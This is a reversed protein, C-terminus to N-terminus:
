APQEAEGNQAPAEAGEVGPLEETVEPVVENISCYVKHIGMCWVNNYNPLFVSVTMIQDGEVVNYDSLDIQAVVDSVDIQNIIDAPGVVTVNRIKEQEVTCRYNEPVNIFYIRSNPISIDKSSYGDLNFIVQATDNGSINTYRDSEPIAFEFISNVGLGVQRLDIYGLFIESLNEISDDQTRVTIGPPNITYSLSSMDFSDFSPQVEVDLALAKKMYVPVLVNFTDTDLTVKPNEFVAGDSYLVAKTDSSNTPKDFVNQGEFSVVCSTVQDVYDKPGSITVENPTIKVEDADLIYGAQAKVNSLDAALTGDAVSFTKTILKDFEVHVTEPSIGDVTFTDGNVSSVNLALEYSGSARVADLNLSVKLDEATYDGIVYRLGSLKVNVTTEDMNVISLGAVDAYTGDLAVNVPVDKVVVSIEPFATLTLAFWLVVGVVASLIINIIKSNKTRSKKTKVTKEAM